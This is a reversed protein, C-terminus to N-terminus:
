ALFWAAVEQNEVNHYRVVQNLVDEVVLQFEYQALLAGEFTFAPYNYVYELNQKSSM